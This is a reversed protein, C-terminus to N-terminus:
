AYYGDCIRLCYQQKYNELIINENLVSSLETLEELSNLEIMVKDVNIIDLNYNRLIPYKNIVDMGQEWIAQIELKM